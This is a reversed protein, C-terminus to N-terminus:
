EVTKDKVGALRYELKNESKEILKVSITRGVENAKIAPKRPQVSNQM